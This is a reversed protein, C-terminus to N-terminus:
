DEIIEILKFEDESVNGPDLSFGEIADIWAETMTEGSGIITVYFEYTKM